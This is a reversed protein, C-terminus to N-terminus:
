DELLRYTFKASATLTDSIVWNHTYVVTGEVTIPPYVQETIVVDEVVLDNAERTVQMRLGYEAIAGAIESPRFAITAFGAYGEQPNFGWMTQRAVTMPLEVQIDSSFGESEGVQVQNEYWTIVGALKITVLDAAQAVTCGLLLAGLLLMRGKM